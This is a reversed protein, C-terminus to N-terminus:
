YAQVRGDFSWDCRKHDGKLCEFIFSDIWEILDDFTCTRFHKRIRKSFHWKKMLVHVPFLSLCLTIWFQHFDSFFQWLYIREWHTKGGEGMEVNVRFFVITTFYRIHSFAFVQKLLAWACVVCFILIWTIICFLFFKLNGKVFFFFKIKNKKCQLELAYITKRNLIDNSDYFFLTDSIALSECIINAADRNSSDANCKLYCM